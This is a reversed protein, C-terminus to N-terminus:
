QALIATIKAAKDHPLDQSFTLRVMGQGLMQMNFTNSPISSPETPQEVTKSAAPIVTKGWLGMGRALATPDIGLVAALTCARSFYLDQSETGNLFRSTSSESIGWTKALDRAKLKKAALRDRIWSTDM